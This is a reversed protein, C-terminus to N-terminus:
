EHGDGGGHGAGAALSAGIALTKVPDHRRLFGNM